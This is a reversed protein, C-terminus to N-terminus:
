EVSEVEVNDILYEAIERWDVACLSHTLLDGALGTRDTPMMEDRLFSLVYSELWEAMQEVARGKDGVNDNALMDAQSTLDSETGEDNTLWLNVCWTPYNRWGNYETM